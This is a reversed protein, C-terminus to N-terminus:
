EYLNADRAEYSVCCVCNYLTSNLSHVHAVHQVGVFFNSTFKRHFSSEPIILTKLCDFHNSINLSFRRIASCFIEQGFPETHPRSYHLVTVMEPEYKTPLLSVFCDVVFFTHERNSQGLTLTSQSDRNYPFAAQKSWRSVNM